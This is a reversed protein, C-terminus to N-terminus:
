LYKSKLLDKELVQHLEHNRIISFIQDDNKEFNLLKEDKLNDSFIEIKKLKWLIKEINLINTKFFNINSKSISRFFYFVM